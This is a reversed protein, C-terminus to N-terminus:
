RHPVKGVVGWGGGAQSDCSEPILRNKVFEERRSSSEAVPRKLAAHELLSHGVAHPSLCQSYIVQFSAEVRYRVLDDRVQLLQKPQLFDRHGFSM